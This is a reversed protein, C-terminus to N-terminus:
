QIKKKNLTSILHAQPVSLKLSASSLPKSNTRPEAGVPGSILPGGFNKLTRTTFLGILVLTCIVRAVEPDVAEATIMSQKDGPYGGLLKIILVHLDAWFPQAHTLLAYLGTVLPACWLDTTTWGYPRLEAPTTLTLPTPYLFSFMNTLFFGGNAIILSTLLLTWPSNAMIPSAHTTVVPPIFNCLLFTRSFGDVVSLPLETMLSPAPIMPLGEVVAQIGAYLVPVVGSLMFSPTLGLLPAAMTEGGYVVTLTTSLDKVFSKEIELNSQSKSGAPLGKRAVHEAYLGERLQRLGLCLRTAAVV